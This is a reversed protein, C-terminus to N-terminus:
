NLFLLEWQMYLIDCLVSYVLLHIPLDDRCLNVYISSSFVLMLESCHLNLIIDSLEPHYRHVLVTCQFFGCIIRLNEWHVSTKTCVLESKRWREITSHPPTNLYQKININSLINTKVELWTFKHVSSRGM